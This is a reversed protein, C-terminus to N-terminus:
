SIRCGDAAFFLLHEGAMSLAIRDGPKLDIKGTIKIVLLDRRCSV